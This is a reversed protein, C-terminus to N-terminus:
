SRIKYMPTESDDLGGTFLRYIYEIALFALMIFILDFFLTAGSFYGNTCNVGGPACFKDFYFPLPFGKGYNCGGFTCSDFLSNHVFGTLILFVVGYFM